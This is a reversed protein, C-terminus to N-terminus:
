SKKKAKRKKAMSLDPLGSKAQQTGKLDDCVATDARSAAVEEGHLGQGGASLGYISLPFFVEKINAVVGRDFHNRPFEEYPPVTLGEDMEGGEDSPGLLAQDSPGGVAAAAGEGQPTETAPVATLAARRASGVADGNRLASRKALELIVADRHRMYKRYAQRLDSWKYSENTTKL